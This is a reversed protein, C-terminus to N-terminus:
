ATITHSLAYLLINSRCIYEKIKPRAFVSDVVLVVYAGVCIPCVCSWANMSRLYVQVHVCLISTYCHIGVLMCFVSDLMEMARVYEQICVNQWSFSLTHCCMYLILCNVNSVYEQMCM